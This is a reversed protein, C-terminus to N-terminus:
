EHIYHEGFIIRILFIISNVESMDICTFIADLSNTFVAFCTESHRDEIVYFISAASKM